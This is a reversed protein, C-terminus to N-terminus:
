KVDSHTRKPEIDIHLHNQHDHNFNPTLILHFIGRSAAECAVTRLERAGPTDQRPPSAEPGCAKDGIAGHWDKLIDYRTGDRKVLISLDIARGFSHQSPTGRGAIRANKRYFSVHILEVFDHAALVEAFDDLALALRCDLIEHVSQHWSAQPGPEHIEVGRLPGKIRIPTDVGHAPAASEYPVGRRKLEAECAAGSM